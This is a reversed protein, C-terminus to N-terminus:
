EDIDRWSTRLRSLERGDTANVLQHVFCAGRGPEMRGSRAIITDGYFVEARFGIELEALLYQEAIERPVTEMGWGAYVANNVHRNMDLDAMRVRFSLECDAKALRPLTRFDDDIARQPLLPYSPLHDNVPVPRRTALDLTSWSSTALALTDGYCDTVEFERCTFMGERTAPWTRVRVVENSRAYREIRLHLRSLVWTLGQHRLDAVSVGLLGAHEAAADQLYNLLALPHLWGRFDVESYRVLFEKELVGKM